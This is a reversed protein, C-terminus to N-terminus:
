NLQSNKIVTNDALIIWQIDDPTTYSAQVPRCQRYRQKLAMLGAEIGKEKAADYVYHSCTKKFICKRRAAKPMLWYLQIAAMLIYKM